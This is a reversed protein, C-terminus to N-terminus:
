LSVFCQIRLDSLHFEPLLIVLIRREMFLARSKGYGLLALVTTLLSELDVTHRNPLILEFTKETWGPAANASGNPLPRILDLEWPYNKGTGSFKKVGIKSEFAEFENVGVLLM